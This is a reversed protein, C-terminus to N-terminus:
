AKAIEIEYLAVLELLSALDWANATYVANAAPIDDRSFAINDFLPQREVWVTTSFVKFRYSSKGVKLYLKAILDTTLMIYEQGNWIM